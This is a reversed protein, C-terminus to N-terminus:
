SPKGVITMRANPGGLISVVHMAGRIVLYWSGVLLDDDIDIM